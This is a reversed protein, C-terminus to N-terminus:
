VSELLNVGIVSIISFILLRTVIQIGDPEYMYFYQSEPKIHIMYKMAALGMLIGTSAFGKVMAFRMLNKKQHINELTIMNNLHELQQVINGGKRKNIRLVSALVSTWPNNTKYIFIDLATDFHHTRTNKALTKFYGNWPSPARKSAHELALEHRNTARFSSTIQDIANPMNQYQQYKIFVDVFMSFQIGMVAAFAINAIRTYWVTIFSELLTYTFTSVLAIIGLKIILQTTTQVIRSKSVYEKMRIFLEYEKLFTIIKKILYETNSLRRKARKKRINRLYDVLLLIGLLIALYLFSKFPTKVLLVLYDKM